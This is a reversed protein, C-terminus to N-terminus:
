YSLAEHVLLKLVEIPGRVRTRPGEHAAVTSVLKVQSEKGLPFFFTCFSVSIWRSGPSNRRM